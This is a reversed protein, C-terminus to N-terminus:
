SSSASDELMLRNSVQLEGFCCGASWSYRATSDEDRVSPLQPPLGSVAGGATRPSPSAGPRASNFLCLVFNLSTSTNPSPPISSLLSSSLTLLLLSQPSPLPARWVQPHQALATYVCPSQSHFCCSLCNESSTCPWSYNPCGGAQISPGWLVRADPWSRLFPEWSAVCIASLCLFLHTGLAYTFTINVSYQLCTLTSYWQGWFVIHMSWNWFLHWSDVSGEAFQLRKASPPDQKSTRLFANGAFGLLPFGSMLLDAQM